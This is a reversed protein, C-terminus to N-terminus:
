GTVQLAVPPGLRQGIQLAVIAQEVQQAAADVVFPDEVFTRLAHHGMHAAGQLGVIGVHHVAQREIAFAHDVLGPQVHGLVHAGAPQLHQQRMERALGRRQVQHARVALLERRRHLQQM